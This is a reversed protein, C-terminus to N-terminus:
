FERIGHLWLTSGAIDQWRKFDEGETFWVGTGPQQLGCAAHHNSRYDIYPLWQLIDDRRKKDEEEVKTLLLFNLIGFHISNSRRIEEENSIRRKTDRCLQELNDNTDRTRKALVQQEGLLLKTNRGIEQVKDGTDQVHSIILQQEKRSEDLNQRLYDEIAKSLTRHRILVKLGASIM